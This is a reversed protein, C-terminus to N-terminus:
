RIYKRVEMLAKGLLNLGKKSWITKGVEKAKKEGMGIGWVRDFPSAEVITKDGTNLLIKKLKKDQTFQLYNGNVVVEYRWRHWEDDTYGHVKRGLKKIDRQNKTIMIAKFIELNYKKDDGEAFLLAKHAMMWTERCYFLKDKVYQEYNDIIESLDCINDSDYTFPKIYWQSFVHRWKNTPYRAENHSYFFITSM